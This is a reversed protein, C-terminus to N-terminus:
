LYAAEERPPRGARGFPGRPCRRSGRTGTQGGKGDGDHFGFFRVARKSPSTFVAELLVDQFPSAYGKENKVEIEFRGHLPVVAGGGAGPAAQGAAPSRQVFGAAFFLVIVVTRPHRM